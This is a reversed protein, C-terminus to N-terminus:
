PSFISSDALRFVYEVTLWQAMPQGDKLPPKFEIRCAARIANETLGARLGRVVRVRGINARSSFLVRLTVFGQVGLRRAERTYAPKPKATIVLRTDLDKTAVTPEDIKDADIIRALTGDDTCRYDENQEATVRPPENSTAPKTAPSAKPQTAEQQQSLEPPPTPVKITRRGSQAHNLSSFLVIVLLAPWYRLKPQSANM